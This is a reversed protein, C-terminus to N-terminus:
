TIIGWILDKASMNARILLKLEKTLYIWLFVNHKKNTYFKLEKM